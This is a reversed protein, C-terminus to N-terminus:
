TKASQVPLKKMAPYSFPTLHGAGKNELDKKLANTYYM